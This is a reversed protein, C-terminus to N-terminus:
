LEFKVLNAHNQMIQEWRAKKAEVSIMSNRLIHAESLFATACIGQRLVYQEKWRSFKGKGTKM